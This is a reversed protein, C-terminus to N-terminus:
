AFIPVRFENALYLLSLFTCVVYRNKDTLFRRTPPSLPNVPFTSVTAALSLPSAKRPGQLTQFPLTPQHLRSLSLTSAKGLFRPADWRTSERPTEDLQANRM